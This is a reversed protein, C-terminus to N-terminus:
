VDTDDLKKVEAFWVDFKAHDHIEQEWEDIEPCEGAKIVPISKFFEDVKRRNFWLQDWFFWRIKWWVNHTWIVLRDKLILRLPPFQAAERETSDSYYFNPCRGASGTGLCFPSPVDRGCPARGSDDQAFCFGEVVVNTWYM